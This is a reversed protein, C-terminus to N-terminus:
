YNLWLIELRPYLVEGHGVANLHGLLQEFGDLLDIPGADRWLLPKLDGLQKGLGDGVGEGGLLLFEDIGAERQRVLRVQEGPHAGSQVLLQCEGVLDGHM